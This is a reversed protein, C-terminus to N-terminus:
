KLGKLIKVAELCADYDKRLEPNENIELMDKLFGAVDNFGRKAIERIEPDDMLNADKLYKEVTYGNRIAGTLENFIREMNTMEKFYAMLGTMDRKFMKPGGTTTDLTDPLDNDRKYQSAIEDKSRSENTSNDNSKSPNSLEKFKLMLVDGLQGLIKQILSHYQEADELPITLDYKDEFIKTYKKKKKFDKLYIAFIEEMQECYMQSSMIENGEKSKYHNIITKNLSNENLIKGSVLMKRLSKVFQYDDKYGLDLELFIYEFDNKKLGAEAQDMHNETKDIIKKSKKKVRTLLEKNETIGKFTARNVKNLVYYDFFIKLFILLRPKKRKFVYYYLGLFIILFIIHNIINEFLFQGYLVDIPNESFEQYLEKDFFYLQISGYIYPGLIVTLTFLSYKTIKKFNM